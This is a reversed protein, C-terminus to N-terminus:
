MGIGLCALAGVFLAMSVIDLIAALEVGPGAKLLNTLIMAAFLGGGVLMLQKARAKDGSPPKEGTKSDRGQRRREEAVRRMDNVTVQADGPVRCSPCVGDPGFTVNLGCHPCEAARNAWANAM